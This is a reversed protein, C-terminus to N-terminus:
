KGWLDLIWKDLRKMWSADLSFTDIAKCATHLSGEYVLPNEWSMKGRFRTTKCYDWGSASRCMLAHIGDMSSAGSTGPLGSGCPWCQKGLLLLLLLLLQSVNDAQVARIRSGTTCGLWLIPSCTKNLSLLSLFADNKWVHGIMQQLYLGIKYFLPQLCFAQEAPSLTLICASTAPDTERALVVLSHLTAVLLPGMWQHWPLCHHPCATACPLFYSFSLM